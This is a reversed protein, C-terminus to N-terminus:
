SPEGAGAATLIAADGRSAGVGLKSRIRTLHVRLTNPSMGLRHALTARDVESHDRLATVIGVERETLGRSRLREPRLAGTGTGPPAARALVDRARREMRAAIADDEARAYPVLWAGVRADYWKFGEGGGQVIQRIAARAAPAGSGRKAREQWYARHVACALADHVVGASSFRVRAEELARMGAPRDGSECLVLGRVAQTAADDAAAGSGLIGAAADLEGTRLALYALGEETGYGSRQTLTVARSALGLETEVAALCYLTWRWLSSGSPRLSREARGLTAAAGELDGSAWEAFGRAYTSWRREWADGTRGALREASRAAQRAAAYSASHAHLHVLQRQLAGEALDRARGASAARLADQAFAIAKYADAIRDAGTALVSRAIHLDALMLPDAAALPEAAAATREGEEHHVLYYALYVIEIQARVRIRPDSTRAALASLASWAPEFSEVLRLCRGRLLVAADSAGRMPLRPLLREADTRSLPGIARDIASRAM